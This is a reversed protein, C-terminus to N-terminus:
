RGATASASHVRPGTAKHPPAQRLGYLLGVGEIDGPQLTRFKEQYRHHMLQGASPPHDLGIAHGIEHAAAYRVDYVELNGDFGIKWRQEPIFCILSQEIRRPEEPGA